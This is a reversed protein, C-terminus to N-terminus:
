KLEGIGEWRHAIAIEEFREIWEYFTPRYGGFFIAPKLSTGAAFISEGNYQTHPQGSTVPNAQTAELQQTYTTTQLLKQNTEQLKRNTEELLTKLEEVTTMNEAKSIYIPLGTTDSPVTTSHSTGQQRKALRLDRAEKQSAPFQRSYPDTNSNQSMCSLISAQPTNLLLNFFEKGTPFRQDPPVPRVPVHSWM